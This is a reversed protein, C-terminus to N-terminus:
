KPSRPLANSKHTRNMTEINADNAITVEVGKAEPGPAAIPNRKMKINTNEM